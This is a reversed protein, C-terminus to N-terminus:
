KSSAKKAPAAAKAPPASAAAAGPEPVGLAVRVKQELAQLKPMLLPGAETALKQAMAQQIEGGIQQYKKAATSDLWAVLQKLEDESMKQELIPGVTTPAIKIARERLLPVGEDAFKRIDSDISKAAVERKDQPMGQLAGGVAQGMQMLPRMVVERAMSEFFPQQLVLAKAVLEKKAASVPASAPSSAAASSATQAHAVTASALLALFFTLKM